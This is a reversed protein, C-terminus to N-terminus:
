SARLGVALSPLWQRFLSFWSPLELLRDDDDMPHPLLFRALGEDRETPHDERRRRLCRTVRWRYPRLVERPWREDAVGEFCPKVVNGV